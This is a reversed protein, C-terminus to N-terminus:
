KVETKLDNPEFQKDFCFFRVPHTIPSPPLQALAFTYLKEISLITSQGDNLIMFLLSTLNNKLKVRGM